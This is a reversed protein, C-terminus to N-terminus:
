VATVAVLVLVYFVFCAAAVLMRRLYRREEPRYTRSILRMWGGAFDSLHDALTDKRAWRLRTYRITYFGSVALLIVAPVFLIFVVIGILIDYMNTPGTPAHLVCGPQTRSQLNANPRNFDYQAFNDSGSFNSSFYGGAPFWAYKPGLAPTSRRM